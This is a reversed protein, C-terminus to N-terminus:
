EIADANRFRQAARMSDGIALYLAGLNRQIGPNPDSLSEVILLQDIASWYDQIQRQADVLLLRDQISRPNLRVREELRFVEGERESLIAFQEEIHEAEEVKGLARLARGLAFLTQSKVPPQSLLPELWALAKDPQGSIVLLRGLESKYHTSHPAKEQAERMNSIAEDVNGLREEVESLAAYSGPYTPDLEIAYKLAIRASDPKDIELYARGLGHWPQPGSDDANTAKQYMLVADGYRQEAVAINGLEHWTAPSSPRIEAAKEFSERAPKLVGALLYVEGRAHWADANDGHIEVMDDALSLAERYSGTDIAANIAKIQPSLVDSSNGNQSEAQDVGCGTLFVVLCFIFISRFQDSM